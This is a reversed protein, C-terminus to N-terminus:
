GKEPRYTLILIGTGSTASDVLRLRSPPSGEGFLRRGSGLVLPHIMLRYEDVLDHKMLTQVLRGSGLVALDKGPRGKLEAIATPVDDGVLRSNEWALPEELTTSVVHKALRNMMGALPEPETATPWYAAMIEYTRRGFLFGDIKDFTDMVAKGFVDDFYALQWGGAEFGGSRDEDPDGPAQMVGDLTLFESVIVKRM